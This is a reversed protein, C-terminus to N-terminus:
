RHRHRDAHLIHRRGALHRYLHRRPGGGAPLLISAGLGGALLAATGAAIAATRTKARGLLHRANM